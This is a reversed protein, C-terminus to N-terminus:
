QRKPTAGWGTERNGDPDSLITPIAAVLRVADDAHGEVTIGIQGAGVTGVDDGYDIVYFMRLAVVGSKGGDQSLLPILMQKAAEQVRKNMELREEDTM